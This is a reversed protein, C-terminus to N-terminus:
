IIKIANGGLEAAKNRVENLASENEIAVKSWEYDRSATVM